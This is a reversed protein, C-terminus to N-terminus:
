RVRRISGTPACHLQQQKRVGGAATGCAPRLPVKGVHARVDAVDRRETDVNGAARRRRADARTGRHEAHAIGKGVFGAAHAAM